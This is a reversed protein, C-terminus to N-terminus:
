KHCNSVLKRHFYSAQAGNPKQIVDMEDNLLRRARQKRVKGDHAPQKFLDVGLGSGRDKTGKPRLCGLRDLQEVCSVPHGLEFAFPCHRNPSGAALIRQHLLADALLANTLHCADLM